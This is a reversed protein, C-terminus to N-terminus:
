IVPSNENTGPQLPEAYVSVSSIFLYQGVTDKLLEASKRVIRPFYGSTDIVADFKRGRLLDIDADRDGQIHEAEPFVDPASKGRNFLTVEHGRTLAYEAAFYGMFRTGGIFLINVPNDKESRLM